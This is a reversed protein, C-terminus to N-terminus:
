TVSDFDDLWDTAFTNLFSSTIVRDSIAFNNSWNTFSGALALQVTNFTNTYTSSAPNSVYVKTFSDSVVLDTTNFTDINDTTNSETFDGSIFTYVSVRHYIDLFSAHVTLTAPNFVDNYNRTNTVNFPDTLILNVRNFTNSYTRTNNYTFSDSAVLSARNFTNTWNTADVVTFSDILTINAPNFTDNNRTVNNDVFAGALSFQTTNFSNAYTRKDLYSSTLIFQALNFTNTYSIAETDIFSNTNILQSTITDSNITTNNDTLSGVIFRNSVDFINLNRTANNESFTNSTTLSIPNFTNLNDTEGKEVFTTSILLNSINFSNNYTRAYLDLLSGISVLDARDFINKNNTINSNIFLSSLFHDSRSFINNGDIEIFSNNFSNNVVLQIPTFANNYIRKDLFSATAVIQTPNFTEYWIQNLWDIDTFGVYAVEQAPTLVNGILTSYVGYITLTSNSSVIVNWLTLTIDNFDLVNSPGNFILTGNRPVFFASPYIEFYSTTIQYNLPSVDLTTGSMLVIDSIVLDSNLTVNAGVSSALTLFLNNFPNNLSSISVNSSNSIVLQLQNNSEGLQGNLIASGTIKLLAVGVASSLLKAGIDVTLDTYGLTEFKTITCSGNIEITQGSSPLGLSWNSASDWNGVGTFVNVALQIPM